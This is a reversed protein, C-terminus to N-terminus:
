TLAFKSEMYFTTLVEAQYKYDSKVLHLLCFLAKFGLEAAVANIQGCTINKETARSPRKSLHLECLHYM